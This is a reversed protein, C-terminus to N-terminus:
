YDTASTNFNSVATFPDTLSTLTSVNKLRILYGKRAWYECNLSLAGNVNSLRMNETPISVQEPAFVMLIPLVQYRRYAIICCHVARTMFSADVTRQVEVIIPSQKLSRDSPEYLIDPRSGDPWEADGVRYNDGDVDLIAVTIINKVFPHKLIVKSIKDTGPRETFSIRSTLLSQTLWKM